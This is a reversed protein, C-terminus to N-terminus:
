ADYHYFAYEIFNWYATMNRGVAMRLGAIEYADGISGANTFNQEFYEYEQMVGM